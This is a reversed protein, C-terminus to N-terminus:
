SGCQGTTVTVTVPATRGSTTARKTARDILALARKRLAQEEPTQSWVFTMRDTVETPVCKDTLLIKNGDISQVRYGQMERDLFFAKPDVRDDVPQAHSAITSASLVLGAGIAAMASRPIRM